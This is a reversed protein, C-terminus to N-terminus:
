SGDDDSYVATITVVVAASLTVYLATNVSTIAWYAPADAM